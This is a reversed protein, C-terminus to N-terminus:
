KSLVEKVDISIGDRKQLKIANLILSVALRHKCLINSDPCTCLRQSNIVTYEGNPSTVKFTVPNGSVYEIKYKNDKVVLDFARDLRKVTEINSLVSNLLIYYAEQIHKVTLRELLNQM